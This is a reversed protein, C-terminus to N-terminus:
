CLYEEVSKVVTKLYRDTLEIFNVDKNKSLKYLILPNHVVAIVQTDPRSYFLPTLCDKLNEIDLGRDPEDMFMTWINESIIIQNKTYYEIIEPFSDKLVVDNEYDFTHPEGNFMTNILNLTCHKIYEGSSQEHYAFFDSVDEKNELETKTSKIETTKLNFCKHTYDARMTALNFSPLFTHEIHLSSYLGYNTQSLYSESCLAIEKMLNLLTSKGSGNKGIIINIGKAFHFEKGLLNKKCNGEKLYHYKAYKNSDFDEWIRISEIM